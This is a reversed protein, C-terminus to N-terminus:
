SQGNIKASSDGINSGELGIYFPSKPVTQGTPAQFLSLSVEVARVPLHLAAGHVPIETEPGVSVGAVQPASTSTSAPVGTTTRHDLASGLFEFELADTPSIEGSGSETSTLDKDTKNCLDVPASDAKPITRVMVHEDPLDALIQGDITIYMDGSSVMSIESPTYYAGKKVLERLFKACQHRDVLKVRNDEKKKCTTSKVQRSPRKAGFSLMLAHSQSNWATYCQDRGYKTTFVDMQKPLSSLPSISNGSTPLPYAFANKFINVSKPDQTVLNFVARTAGLKGKEM